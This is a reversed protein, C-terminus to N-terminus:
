GRLLTLATQPQANAQALISLAAQQLINNKTLDATESAVDVRGGEVSVAACGEVRDPVFTDRSIIARFIGAQKVLTIISSRHFLGGGLCIRDRGLRM